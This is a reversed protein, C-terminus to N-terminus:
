SLIMMMGAGSLVELKDSRQKQSPSPSANQNQVAVTPSGSVMMQNSPLMETSMLGMGHNMPALYPSYSLGPSPGLGQAMSFTPQPPLCPPTNAATLNM